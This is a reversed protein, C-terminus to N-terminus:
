ETFLEASYLTATEAKLQQQLQQIQQEIREVRLRARRARACAADVLAAEVIRAVNHFENEPSIYNFQRIAGDRSAIGEAIEHCIRRALTLPRHSPRVFISNDLTAGPCPMGPIVRLTMGFRQATTTWEDLSAPWDGGNSMCIEQAIMAASRQRWDPWDRYDGWEEDNM